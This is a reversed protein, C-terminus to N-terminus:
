RVLDSDNGRVFGVHRYFAAAHPNATVEIRRVSNGSATVLLDEVL